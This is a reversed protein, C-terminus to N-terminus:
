FRIFWDWIEEVLDLCEANNCFENVADKDQGAKILLSQIINIGSTPGYDDKKLLCFLQINYDKLLSTIM